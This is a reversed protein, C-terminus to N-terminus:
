KIAIFIFNNSYVTCSLPTIFVKNYERHFPNHRDMERYSGLNLSESFVSRPGRVPAVKAGGAEKGAGKTRRKPQPVAPLTSSRTIVAGQTRSGEEGSRKSLTKQERREEEERRRTVEVLERRLEDERKRIVLSPQRRLERENVLSSFTGTNNESKEKRRKRVEKKEKRSGGSKRRSRSWSRARRRGGREEMEKPRPGLSSVPFLSKRGFDRRGGQQALLQTDSQGSSVGEEEM